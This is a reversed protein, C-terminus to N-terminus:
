LVTGQAYLSQCQHHRRSGNYNSSNKRLKKLSFAKILDEAKCSYGGDGRNVARLVVSLRGTMIVMDKDTFSCTYKPNEKMIQELSILNVKSEPM